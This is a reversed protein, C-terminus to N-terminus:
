NLFASLVIGAKMIAFHYNFYCIGVTSKFILILTAFKGYRLQKRKEDYSLPQGSIANGNNQLEINEVNFTKSKGDVTLNNKSFMTQLEIGDTKRDTLSYEHMDKDAGKDFLERETINKDNM